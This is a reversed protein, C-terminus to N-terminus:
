ERRKREREKNRKEEEQPEIMVFKQKKKFANLEEQAKDRKRQLNEIEDDDINENDYNKFIMDDYHYIIRELDKIQQEILNDAM